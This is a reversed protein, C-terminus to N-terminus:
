LAVFTGQQSNQLLHVRRKRIATTGKSLFAQLLELLVRSSVHLIRNESSTQNRTRLRNDLALTGFLAGLRIGGGRENESEFGLSLFTSSSPSRATGCLAARPVFM